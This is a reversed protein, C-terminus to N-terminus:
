VPMSMIDKYAEVMKNRVESMATFALSSKESAIMVQSLSINPDGQEYSTKLAGATKQLDNVSNISKALVDGFSVTAQTESQPKISEAQAQASMIRMQTLVQSIEPSVTSM